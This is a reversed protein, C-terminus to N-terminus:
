EFPLALRDSESTQRSMFLGEGRVTACSRIFVCNLTVKESPARGRTGETVPWRHRSSDWPVMGAAAVEGAVPFVAM